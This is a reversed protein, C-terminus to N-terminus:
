PTSQARWTPSCFAAARVGDASPGPSPPSPRFLRLAAVAEQGCEQCQVLDFRRYVRDLM